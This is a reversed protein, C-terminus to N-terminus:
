CSSALELSVLTANATTAAKKSKLLESNHTEPLYCFLAAQLCCFRDENTQRTDLVAVVDVNRMQWKTLGFQNLRLSYSVRIEVKIESSVGVQM